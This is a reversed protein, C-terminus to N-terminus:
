GCPVRQRGLSKSWMDALATDWGFRLSTERTPAPRFADKGPEDFREIGHLPVHGRRAGTPQVLDLSVAVAHLHVNMVPSVADSRSPLELSSNPGRSDVRSAAHRLRFAKVLSPKRCNREHEDCDCNDSGRRSVATKTGALRPRTALSPSRQAMAACK